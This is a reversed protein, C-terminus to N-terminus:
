MIKNYALFSLNKEAKPLKFGKAKLYKKADTINFGLRKLCALDNKTVIHKTSRTAIGAHKKGLRSTLSGPIKVRRKATKSGVKRKVVKRKATKSRTGKSQQYEESALAKLESGDMGPYKARMKRYVDLYGMLGKKGKSIFSKKKAASRKKWAKEAGERTGYGGAYAGGRMSIQDQLIQRIRDQM